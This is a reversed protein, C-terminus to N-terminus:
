IGDEPTIGVERLADKLTKRVFDDTTMGARQALKELRRYGQENAELGVDETGTAEDKRWVLTVGDAWIVKRVTEMQPKAKPQALDVMPTIDIVIEGRANTAACIMEDVQEQTMDDICLPSKKPM